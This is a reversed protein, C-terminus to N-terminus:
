IVCHLHELRNWNCRNKVFHFDICMEFKDWIQGSEERLSIIEAELSDWREGQNLKPHFHFRFTYRQSNTSRHTWKLASSPSFVCGIAGDSSTNKGM